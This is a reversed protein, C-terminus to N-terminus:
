KQEPMTYDNKLWEEKIQEFTFAGQIERILSEIHPQSEFGTQNCYTYFSICAWFLRMNTLKLEEESLKIGGMLDNGEEKAKQIVEGFFDGNITFLRAEMSHLFFSSLPLVRGLEFFWQQYIPDTAWEAGELYDDDVEEYRLFKFKIGTLLIEIWERKQQAVAILQSIMGMDYESVVSPTIDISMKNQPKAVMANLISAYEQILPDNESIILYKQDPNM